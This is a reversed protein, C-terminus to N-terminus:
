SSQPHLAELVKSLAVRPDRKLDSEWFRLVAWGQSRL